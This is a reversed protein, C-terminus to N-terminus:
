IQTFYVGKTNDYCLIKPKDDWDSLVYRVLEEAGVKYTSMGPKHTHGHILKTVGHEQMHSIVSETVVDMQELSKSVNNQSRSRVQTVLKERYKLSLSLFLLPFIRNRTLLRFRQHAIDKTCYRDGHALMIKENGLYLITPESMMTWGTLQAFAKGLLFDRNGHMYFLNIGLQKLTHLQEAIGRSWDNLTDDGAWVHFFDGLIYINKVEHKIAWKLFADFRAQIAIEKPHLHLDSIFVAEIM